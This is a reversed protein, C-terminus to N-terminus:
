FNRALTRLPATTAMGFREAGESLCVMMQSATLKDAFLAVVKHVEPDLPSREKELVMAEYKTAWFQAETRTEFRKRIRKGQTTASRSVYVEWPLAPSKGKTIKVNKM